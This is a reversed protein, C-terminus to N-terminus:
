GRRLARDDHIVWLADRVRGIEDRLEGDDIQESLWGLTDLASEIQRTTRGPKTAPLAADFIARLREARKAENETTEGM